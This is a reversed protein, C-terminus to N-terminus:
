KIFYGSVRWQGKDKMPTITEVADKKKEFVTDFQIIVYEGDPAGPVSRTFQKSKLNRSLVKGFADRIPKVQNIFQQKPAAAKMFSASSEWAQGVQGKDVLALWAKAATVAAQEDAPSATAPAFGLSVLAVLGSTAAVLAATKSKTM